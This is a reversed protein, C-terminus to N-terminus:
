INLKKKILFLVKKKDNPSFWFVNSYKKYWTIQRKAYNRTNKKIKDIVEKKSSIKGDLFDFIERYGLTKMIFLDKYPYLKKTEEFLGKKVMLDVRKNILEYLIERKLYLGIRIIINFKKNNKNNKNNKNILYSSFTKGTFNIVSLARIIRIHNNKDIKKYYIYDKKKLEKQITKLGYKKYIDIIKNRESIPVKPTSILGNVISKEYLGSGGVMIINKIKKSKIFNLVDKKFNVVNYNDFISKNGIFNYNVKEKELEKKNPLSTGIKLEKYFKRSDCSIIELKLKKALFIALKTKGVGTTGIISIINSKKFM